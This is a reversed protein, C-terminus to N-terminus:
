FFAELAYAVCVLLGQFLMTGDLVFYHYYKVRKLKDNNLFFFTSFSSIIFADLIFVSQHYHVATMLLFIILSINAVMMANKEGIVIPITKLKAQIDAQMDRIDFPITIAFVFMFRESLMWIIERVSYSNETQIIPLLITVASWVFSIIFIKLFPIERLRFINKKSKFIPLSYFLTLVGIPIFTMLVVNKAFVVSAIFGVISLIVLLYFLKLHQKVWKHKPSNLADPNTIVTIFRHINYELLTAFFIIFVYPHLQPKMGLQIQTEM